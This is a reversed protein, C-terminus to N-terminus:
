GCRLRWKSHVKADKFKVKGLELSYLGCESVRGADGPM